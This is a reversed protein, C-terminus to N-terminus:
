MVSRVMWFRIWVPISFSQFGKLLTQCVCLNCICACDRGPIVPCKLQLWSLPIHLTLCHWAWLVPFNSNLVSLARLRLRWSATGFEPSNLRNAKQPQSPVTGLGPVFCSASFLQELECRLAWWEALRNWCRPSAPSTRAKAASREKGLCRGCCSSVAAYFGQNKAVPLGKGRFFGGPLADMANQNNKAVAPPPLVHSFCALLLLIWLRRSPATM